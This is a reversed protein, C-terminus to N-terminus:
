RRVRIVDLRTVSRVARAARRDGRAVLRLPGQGAPLPAGDVAYAVIVEHSSFAPDLEALSFVVQYGDAAGALVCTALAEGHLRSGLPVGAKDLLDAVRVGDYAATGGQEAVEVRAPPLRRLDDLSLSLAAQVDGSVILLAAPPTATSTQSSAASPAALAISTVAVFARLPM